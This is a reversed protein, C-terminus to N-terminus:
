ICVTDQSLEFREERGRDLLKLSCQQSTTIYTHRFSGGKKRKGKEKQRGYRSPIERESGMKMRVETCEDRGM